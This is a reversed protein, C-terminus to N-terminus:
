GGTRRRARSALRASGTLGVMEFTWDREFFGGTYATAAPVYEPAAPIQMSLGVRSPPVPPSSLTGELTVTGKVTSGPLTSIVMPGVDLGAVTVAQMGFERHDASGKGVAHLVYDGHAVNLLEFRGDAGVSVSRSPIAVPESSLM